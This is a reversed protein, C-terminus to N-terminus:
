KWFTEASIFMNIIAGPAVDAGQKSSALTLEINKINLYYELSELDLLYNIINTFNSQAILQIATKKYDYNAIDEQNGLNIKQSISNKSAVGELTTIFELERNNSIFIQELKSLQSNIKELNETLQRLNQGKIYKAELDIRQNEIEKGIELIDNVTPIVILFIILSIFILFGVIIVIIKNKLSFNSINVAPLKM